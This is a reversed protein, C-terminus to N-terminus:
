VGRQEDEQIKNALIFPISYTRHLTDVRGLLENRLHIDNAKNLLGRVIEIEGDIIRRFIRLETSNLFSNLDELTLQKLYDYSPHNRYNEM